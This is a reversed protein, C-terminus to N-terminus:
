KKIVQFEKSSKTLLENGNATIVVDDEIRVGGLQEDYIGPEVTFVMGEKLVDLNSENLSPFEHVNLGLGHGIRHPFLEGFGANGIFKRAARDIDGIKAGPKCVNLAELQAKYVTDYIKKQQDNAEDFVVTRSIDSCYGQYVVGLDFLVFDGKRLKRNGPNGHPQGSKEGFLVLTSFSMERIGQKKLEYEISAIVELETINEKLADQGIKIGLDAFYAAKRLITLEEESKIVRLENMKEDISSISVENFIASIEETRKYTLFEKEIAMKTPSNIEKESMKLRILEWPDQHDTYSVISFDWGAEKAQSVEMTPCVLFPDGSSFVFIGLLREHPECLFGSLYFVNESSSIFALDLHNTSLWQQVNLIRQKM